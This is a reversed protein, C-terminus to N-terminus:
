ITKYRERNRGLDNYETLSFWDRKIEGSEKIARGRGSGLELKLTRLVKYVHEVV